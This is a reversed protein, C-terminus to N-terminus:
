YKEQQNIYLTNTHAHFKTQLMLTPSRLQPIEIVSYQPPKKPGLRPFYFSVSLPRM